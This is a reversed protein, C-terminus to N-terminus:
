RNASLFFNREHEQQESQSFTDIRCNDETETAGNETTKRLIGHSVPTGSPQAYSEFTTLIIVSIVVLGLLLTDTPHQKVM